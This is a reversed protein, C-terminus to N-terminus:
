LSPNGHESAIDKLIQNALQVRNEHEMAVSKYGNLRSNSAAIVDDHRTGSVYLKIRQISDPTM